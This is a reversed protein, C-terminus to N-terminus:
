LKSSHVHILTYTFLSYSDFKKTFAPITSYYITHPTIQCYKYGAFKPLLARENGVKSDTSKIRVSAPLPHHRDRLRMRRRKRRELRGRRRWRGHQRHRPSRAGRGTAEGVVKSLDFVADINM